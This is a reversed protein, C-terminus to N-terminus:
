RLPLVWSAALAPDGREQLTRCLTRVSPAPAVTRESGDVVVVLPKGLDCHRADLWAEVKADGVGTVVLREGVLEAGLLRGPQPSPDRLWYHDRVTGDTQQWQLWKPSAARALPVLKALLDRDPLGTHGNNAILDFRTPYRGPHKQQLEALQRAFGECRERRGYATDRDGVMFSFALTHLGVASSQGDSPAAASGHVAAFRHPLKPGLAFAGYGGHSYGIAVVRDPDVEGCVVFQRILKELVPYFYDTYFGNWEDTPARLACYVYGGAEPHDRYYIQMHQWQSDNVRKPAGGGGHMAIVLGYGGAPKDGVVKWTYPSEKDGARVRKADFDPQLAARESACSAAFALKRLQADGAPTVLMADLNRDFEFTAQRAADAAFYRTFQARLADDAADATDAAAASGEAAVAAAAAAPKAAYRAAEDTGHLEVGRGWGVAFRQGTAAFSVAWPHFAADSAAAAQAAAGVFWGRDLGAPDPEDAGCFRWSAGDWVEVWTHNGPQHPWRVSVLRAPVCCARCADALLISLGTCSAKGQAISASPAQDARKRETSYHVNLAGFIAANLKQAAEGPTRCDRVLPLFRATFGTRWDERAENAQAYPLVYNAFLADDLSAGWPVAARAEHAQQVERLLFAADLAQADAEPMHTLLFAVSDRREPPAKRWADHLQGANDGGRACALLLAEPLSQAAVPHSVALLAAAAFAALSAAATKAVAPRRSPALRRLLLPLRPM